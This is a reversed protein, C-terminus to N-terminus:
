NFVDSLLFTPLPQVALLLWCSPLMSHAAAVPWVPQDGIRPGATTPQATLLFLFMTHTRTVQPPAPYPKQPSVLKENGTITEIMDKM